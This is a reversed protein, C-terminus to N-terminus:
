SADAASIYLLGEGYAIMFRLHALHHMGIWLPAPDFGHIMAQFDNSAVHRFRVESSDSVIGIETSRFGVGGLELSAFRHRYFPVTIGTDTMTQGDRIAGSKEPDVKFRDRSTPEDITTDAAATDLQARITQSELPVELEVISRRVAIPV